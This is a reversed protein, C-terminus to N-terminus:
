TVLREPNFLFKKKKPKLKGLFRICQGEPTDILEVKVKLGKLDEVIRHRDSSSIFLSFIIPECTEVSEAFIKLYEINEAASLPIFGGKACAIVDNKLQEKLQESIM